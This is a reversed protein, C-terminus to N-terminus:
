PEAIHADDSKPYFLEYQREVREGVKQLFDRPGTIKLVPGFGLLMILLETEDQLDYYISARCKGTALDLESRKEYSAFEMMFREVANREGSVEVTVPKECRRRRFFEELDTETEMHKGTPVAREIRGINFLYEERKPFTICYIRFKDNKRSYEIRLPLANKTIRTGRRSTLELSLVERDRVARLVAGFVERYHPDDYDDGDTFRDFERFYGAKYLPKVDKLRESLAAIDEDSLFLRFKPDSLKAKLWSKQLSSIIKPPAKSLVSCLRGNENRKLLGWLSNGNKDPILKEPIFLLSDRFANQSVIERLRKETVEGESLIREACRFYAGYIESFLKM